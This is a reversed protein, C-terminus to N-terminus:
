VGVTIYDFGADICRKDNLARYPDIITKGSMLRGVENLDVLTFERWPTMVVLVEACACADLASAGQNVYGPLQDHRAEPDYVQLKFDDLQEILFIAPSNKVSHTNPKYALGWVAIIAGKAPRIGNHIIRLVWDRNYRSNSQFAAVVGSDTGNGAALRELTVLDREINGGGIGLGPDLYAYKGIRRDLRLAPIIESWDAGISACLEALTNTVSVSAALYANISLKALEASEYRMKLVPCGFSNLYADYPEPLLKDPKSCGVIIREPSEAREVARGFVLTEVQYYLDVVAGQTRIKERLVRMFGPPVQCLVVVSTGAGINELVRGLLEHLSHLQSRNQEDTPVDLSVFVLNCRKLAGFAVTFDMRDRVVSLLEELGPELITLNGRSLKGCLKEDTDVGVVDFGKAATAISSVIGLHSLGVFGIM